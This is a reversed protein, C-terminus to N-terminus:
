RRVLVTLHETARIARVLREGARVTAAPWVVSEHVTGEVVAGPGVVSRGGAAHLNAALYGAPTGCDFFPGTYREVDLRGADLAPRWSVEYLGSPTPDLAAVAVDFRVQYTGIPLNPLRYVGAETSTALTEVGTDVNRARVEANPVVAGTSDSVTGTITGRDAQGLLVAPLLCALLALLAFILIRRM